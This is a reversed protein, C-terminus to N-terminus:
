YWLPKLLNEDLASPKENLLEDHYQTLKIITTSLTDCLVDKIFM